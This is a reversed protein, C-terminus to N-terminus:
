RVDKLWGGADYGELTFCSQAFQLGFQTIRISRYVTMTKKAQELAEAAIPQAEIFSYRRPDEVQEDSFYIMGLRDLNALYRPNRDPYTCGSMEAVLNIGTAILESGVGLPTKTRVDLAPQPGALAMFRIIRAEDPLLERLIRPFAPHSAQPEGHDGVHRLLGDGQDRLQEPTVDDAQKSARVAPAQIISPLPSNQLALARVVTSRVNEVQRDIIDTIPEGSAVQRVLDTAASATGHLASASIRTGTGVAFRALGGLGVYTDRDMGQSGLRRLDTKFADRGLHRPDFRELIGQGNGSPAPPVIAPAPAPPPVAPPEERKRTSM